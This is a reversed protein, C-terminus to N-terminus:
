LSVFLNSLLKWQKFAVPINKFFTGFNLADETEDILINLIKM